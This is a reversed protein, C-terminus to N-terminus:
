YATKCEGDPHRANCKTCTPEDMYDGIERDNPNKLEEFLAIVKKRATTGSNLPNAGNLDSNPQIGNPAAVGMPTERRIPGHDATTTPGGGASTLTTPETDTSAGILNRGPDTLTFGATANVIKSAGKRHQSSYASNKARQYALGKQEEDGPDYLHCKAREGPGKYGPRPDNDPGKCEEVGEDGAATFVFGLSASVIIRRCDACFTEEGAKGIKTILRGKDCVPCQNM